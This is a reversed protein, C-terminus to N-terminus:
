ETAVAKARALMDKPTAYIDAIRADVSAGTMPSVLLGLKKADALFAPDAMAADFAKRLAALREPPVKNSVLFLRGLSQPTILFDYVKRENADAILAGGFPVDPAVGPLANPTHRIVVHVKHTSLWDAPISTVGSCDGDIEGKELALKKDASGAYGQVLKLKVGLLNRLMAVDLNGSTGAATGGFIVQDHAKLDSWTRVGLAGRVYCVRSDDGINGLFAFTRFDVKVREPSLISETILSSSFTVIVTGDDPSSSLSQVARLSGAGPMNQAVISPAGPLHREMHRQVLRAYVDVGGGPPMGVVLRVTKGAYFPSSEQAQAPPHAFAGLALVLTLGLVPLRGPEVFSSNGSLM